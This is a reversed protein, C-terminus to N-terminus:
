SDRAIEKIPHDPRFLFSEHSFFISTCHPLVVGPAHGYFDVRELGSAAFGDRIGYGESNDAIIVGGDSRLDLADEILETRYLGDIVIVDFSGLQQQRIIRRVAELCAAPSEMPVLFLQVNKSLRPKLQDHWLPDGEFSVVEAARRAWWLTSQGAGFELVKKDHFDRCELFYMCPYTYWPLAQGHRDVAAMKFSSRFHGTRISFWLPTLIATALSRIPKWVIGPVYNKFSAFLRKLFTVGM